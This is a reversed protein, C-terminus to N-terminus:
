REGHHLVGRSDSGDSLASEDWRAGLGSVFSPQDSLTNSVRCDTNQPLSSEHPERGTPGVCGIVCPACASAVVAGEVHTLRHPPTAPGMVSASRLGDGMAWLTKDATPDNDESQCALGGAWDQIVALCITILDAGM